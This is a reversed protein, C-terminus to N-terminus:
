SEGAPHASGALQKSWQDILNALVDKCSRLDVGVVCRNRHKGGAVALGLGAPQPGIDAIIARCTKLGSWGYPESIRFITFSFM